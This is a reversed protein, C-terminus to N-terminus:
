ESSEKELRDLLERIKEREESSVKRTSLAQLVLNGPSGRFVRDMLDGLFATETQNRTKAPRYVQPRVSDDKEVLGKDAMIQMHKLVTTYGVDRRESLINLVDRVTTPGRDWLVQLIELEADTPRKKDRKKM